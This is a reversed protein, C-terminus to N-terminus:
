RKYAPNEYRIEITENEKKYNLIKNIMLIVTKSTGRTYDTEHKKFFSCGKCEDKFHSSNRVLVSFLYFIDVDSDKYEFLYDAKITTYKMYEKKNILYTVSNSDLIKELLPLNAVREQIYYEDLFISKQITKYTIKKKLIEKFIREKNTSPFTIDKLHQLGALHYFAEPPFCLLLRYSVNKRGLIIEYATDKLKNYEFAADYLIDEM